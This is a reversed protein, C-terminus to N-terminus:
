TRPPSPQMLREIEDATDQVIENATGDFLFAYRETTRSNTHDFIGGIHELTAGKTRAVSAFTRRLDKPQIEALRPHRKAAADRAKDWVYFISRRPQALAGLDGFLYGSGFSPLASILALAQRPLRITRDDDIRDSTKHEGLVIVNGHLHEYKATVLETIRTGAYLITYIAAVHCPYKDSLAALETHM